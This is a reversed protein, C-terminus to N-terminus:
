VAVASASEGEIYGCEESVAVTIRYSYQTGAEVTTDIYTDPGIGSSLGLDMWHGASFRQIRYLLFQEVDYSLAVQGASLELTPAAPIACRVCSVGDWQWGVPCNGEASSSQPFDDLDCCDVTKCDEPM